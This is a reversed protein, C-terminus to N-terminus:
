SESTAISRDREVLWRLTATVPERALFGPLEAAAVFRVEEVEDPQLTFPGDTTGRYLYIQEYHVGAVPGLRAVLELPPSVGLEEAVERAAVAAHVADLADDPGALYDSEEVHGACSTDWYRPWTQKTAHRRQVLLRGARDHLLVHVSRHVLQEDHITKRDTWRVFRNAADVVAFRGAM